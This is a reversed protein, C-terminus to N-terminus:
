SDDRVFYVNQAANDGYVNMMQVPVMLMEGADWAV